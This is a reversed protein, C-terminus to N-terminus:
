LTLLLSPYPTSDIQTMTTCRLGASDRVDDDGAEPMVM